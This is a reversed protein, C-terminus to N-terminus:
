TNRDERELQVKISNFCLRLLSMVLPWRTRIAGKHFQFGESGRVFVFATPELQVKISNFSFYKRRFM